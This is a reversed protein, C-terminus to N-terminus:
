RSTPRRDGLVKVSSRTRDDNARLSRQVQQAGDVVHDNTVIHGDSDVVFGSGTGGGGGGSSRM